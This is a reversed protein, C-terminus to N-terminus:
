KGGKPFSRGGKGVKGYGKKGKGDNGESKGKSYQMPQMLQSSDEEFRRELLQKQLKAALMDPALVRQIRPGMTLDKRPKEGMGQGPHQLARAVIKIYNHVKAKEDHEGKFLDLCLWHFREHEVFPLSSDLWHRSKDHQARNGVDPLETVFDKPLVIKGGGKPHKERELTRKVFEPKAKALVFNICPRSMNQIDGSMLNQISLDVQFNPDCATTWKWNDFGAPNMEEEYERRAAQAWTQDVARDVTGGPFAWGQLKDDVNHQYVTLVYVHQASVPYVLVVGVQRAFLKSGATGFNKAVEEEKLLDGIVVNPPPTTMQFAPVLWQPEKEGVTKFYLPMLTGWAWADKPDADQSSNREFRHGRPPVRIVELKGGRTFNVDELRKLVSECESSSQEDIELQFVLPYKDSNSGPKVEQLHEQMYKLWKWLKSESDEDSLEEQGNLKLKKDEQDLLWHAARLIWTLSDETSFDTM